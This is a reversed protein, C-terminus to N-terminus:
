TIIFLFDPTIKSTAHLALMLNPTDELHKAISNGEANIKYNEELIKTLGLANQIEDSLAIIVYTNLGPPHPPSCGGWSRFYCSKKPLVSM